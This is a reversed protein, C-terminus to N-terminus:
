FFHFPNSKGHAFLTNHRLACFMEAIKQETVGVYSDLIDSARGYSIPFRLAQDHRKSAQYQPWRRMM